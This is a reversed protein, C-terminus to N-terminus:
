EWATIEIKDPSYRRIISLAFWAFAPLCRFRPFSHTPKKAFVLGARNIFIIGNQQHVRLRLTNRIGVLIAIGEVITKFTFMGERKFRILIPSTALLPSLVNLPLLWSLLGRSAIRARAQKGAYKNACPLALVSVILDRSCDMCFSNKGRNPQTM